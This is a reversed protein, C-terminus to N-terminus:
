RIAVEATPESQGAAKEALARDGLISVLAETFSAM